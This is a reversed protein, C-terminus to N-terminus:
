MAHSDEFAWRVPWGNLGFLIGECNQSFGHCLLSFQNQKWDVPERRGKKLQASPERACNSLLKHGVPHPECDNAGDRWLSKFAGGKLRKDIFRVTSIPNPEQFM